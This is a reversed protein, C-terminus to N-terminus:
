SAYESKASNENRLPRQLWTRVGSISRSLSIKIAQRHLAQGNELADFVEFTGDERIFKQTDETMVNRRLKTLFNTKSSQL